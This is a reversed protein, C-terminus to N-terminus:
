KMLDNELNQYEINLEEAHYYLSTINLSKHGAQDKTAVPSTSRSHKSIGTDKWSYWCLGTIDGLKGAAQLRSLLKKHRRYMRDDDIPVTCPELTYNQKGQDFKGLMYFHPPYKDFRADRFYHMVSEPITATRKKWKKANGAQVVVVGREIDFDKFKLRTIEVPRIYCYFQLLIARFLWYDSKEAETAVIRREEDTFPRRLKEEQIPQKIAKWPNIEAMERSIMENWLTTLNLKYNKLTTGRHRSLGTLYDWFEHAYRKTFKSVPMDEIKEQKCYALFIRYTSSYTRQTNKRPSKMKEALAVDLAKKISPKDELRKESKTQSTGAFVEILDAVRQAVEARVELNAIDNLSFDRRHRTETNAERDFITYDIYWHDGKVVRARVFIKKAM